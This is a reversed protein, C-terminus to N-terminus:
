SVGYKLEIPVDMEKPIFGLAWAKSAYRCAGQASTKVPHHIIPNVGPGAM